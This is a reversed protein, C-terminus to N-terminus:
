SIIMLAIYLCNNKACVKLNFGVVSLSSQRITQYSCSYKVSTRFSLICVTVTSHNEAVSVSIDFHRRTCEQEWRKGAIRAKIKKKSSSRCFIKIPFLSCRSCKCLISTGTHKHLGALWGWVTLRYRRAGEMDLSTWWTYRPNGCGTPDLRATSLTSLHPTSGSDEEKMILSLWEYFHSFLTLLMVAKTHSCAPLSRPLIVAPQRTM